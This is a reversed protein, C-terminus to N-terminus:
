GECGVHQLTVKAISGISTWIRCQELENFNVIRPDM